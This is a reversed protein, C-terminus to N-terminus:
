PCGSYPQRPLIHDFPADPLNQEGLLQLKSKQQENLIRLTQMETNSSLLIKRLDFNEHMLASIKAEHENARAGLIQILERDKKILGQLHQIEMNMGFADSSSFYDILSLRRKEDAEKEVEKDMALVSESAIGFASLILLLSLRKKMKKSM